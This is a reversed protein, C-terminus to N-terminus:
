AVASDDPVQDVLYRVADDFLVARLAELSAINFRDCFRRTMAELTIEQQEAVFGLLAVLSTTELQSICRTLLPEFRGKDASLTHLTTTFDSNKQGNDSQTHNNKM